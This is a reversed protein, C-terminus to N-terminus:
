TKLLLLESFYRWSLYGLFCLFISGMVHLLSHLLAWTWQGKQLLAFSEASFSSFTTLGGLLGTVLFLRLNENMQQSQELFALVGGIVFAGTLNAILTGLAVYAHFSNLYVSLAWRMWAGLAAGLGVAVFGLSNV